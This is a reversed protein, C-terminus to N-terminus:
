YREGHYLIETAAESIKKAVDKDIGYWFDAKQELYDIIVAASQGIPWRKFRNAFYSTVEPAYIAIIKEVQSRNM